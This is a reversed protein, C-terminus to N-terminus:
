VAQPTAGQQLVASRIHAKKMARLTLWTTIAIPSIIVFKYINALQEFSLSFQQMLPDQLFVLAIVHVGFIPFARTVAVALGRMKVDKSYKRIRWIVLLPVSLLKIAIGIATPMLQAPACEAFLPSLSFLTFVTVAAVLLIKLFRQPM